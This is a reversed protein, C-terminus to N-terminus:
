SGSISGPSVVRFGIFYTFTDPVDPERSACHANKLLTYFWCGGRLAQYVRERDDWSDTWEWVNGSMDSAGCESDGDPFQGVITTSALEHGKDQFWKDWDFDNRRGWLEACNLRNRDFTDGWPYERGDTHRAAREWEEETPM